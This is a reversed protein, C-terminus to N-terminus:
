CTQVAFSKFFTKEFANDAGSKSDWGISLLNDYRCNTPQEDTM